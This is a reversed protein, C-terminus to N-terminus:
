LKHYLAGVNSGGPSWSSTSSTGGWGWSIWIKLLIIM